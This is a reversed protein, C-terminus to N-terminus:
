NKLEEYRCSFVKGPILSFYNDLNEDDEYLCIVKWDNVVLTLRNHVKGTFLGRKWNDDRRILIDVTELDNIEGLRIRM